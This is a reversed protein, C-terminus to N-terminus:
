PRPATVAAIRALRDLVPAPYVGLWITVAACAWLMVMGPLSRTAPLPRVAGRLYMVAIIRLYYYAGIAANLCGIVALAAYLGGADGPLQNWVDVAGFFLLFKGMFGATLPLGILSFLFLAMLLALGPHSRGLGALDDVTEVRRGGSNLVALVGFAGLTMAAYAILYFLVAPVGGVAEPVAALPGVVALGILMYGAHAVSSYALIRQLNDQWLAVVNGLTMTIAALIWLLVPVQRSLSLAADAPPNVLDRVPGAYGLLHILAVFGAVKPIFALLAAGGTPAGQYVDPAYFHFPVATIRFGIGAVVMVVAVLALSPAGVAGSEAIAFADLMAPINTTGTLGYLYSFGFLLLGSSFISLLFYKVAAEQAPRDSRPLYLLVYTPISVLELSVFLTILENALGTLSTGAAIFLLCAHFEGAVADPVEDWNLLVLVVGGVLALIRAYVSVSDPWIPSVTSVLLGAADSRGPGVIAALGAAALGALAVLGCTQRSSRRATGALFLVCAVLLLVAEPVVFRVDNKLAAVTAPDYYQQALLMTEM